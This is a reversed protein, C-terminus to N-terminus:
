VWTVRYPYTAVSADEKTPFMGVGGDLQEEAVSRESVANYARPMMVASDDVDMRDDEDLDEGAVAMEYDMGCSDEHLIRLKRWTQRSRNLGPSTITTTSPSGDEAFWSRDMFSTIHTWIEPPLIPLKGEAQISQRVMLIRVVAQQFQPAFLSHTLPSWPRLAFQLLLVLERSPPKAGRYRPTTTALALIDGSGPLKPNAGSQLLAHVRDTMRADVAVQLPVYEWISRLYEQIDPADLALAIADNDHRSTRAKINAGYAALYQVVALHGRQAALLLPTYGGEDTDELGRGQMEELLLEVVELHGGNAASILVGMGTNNREDLTSGQELLWQVLDRHGCYAALLLATDGNNNREQLSAGHMLFFSVLEINGGCAALILSTYGDHDAEKLSAGHLLLWEAMEQQGGNAASLLPTFGCGNKDELSAGLELLREVLRRHGGYAALLLATDGNNNTELLSFGRQLLWEVVDM